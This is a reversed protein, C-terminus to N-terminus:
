NTIVSWGGITLLSVTAYGATSPPANGTGSLDVSGTQGNILLANLINDVSATTFLNNSANINYLNVNSSVDLVSLLCSHCDLNDFSTSNYSGLNLSTLPNDYCNLTQLVTNTSVNLTPINNNFCNLTNLLSNKLCVIFMNRLYRM